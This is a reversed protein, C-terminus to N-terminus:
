TYHREGPNMAQWNAAPAAVLIGMVGNAPLGTNGELPFANLTVGHVSRKPL